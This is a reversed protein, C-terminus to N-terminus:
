VGGASCGKDWGRPVARRRGRWAGLARCTGCSSGWPCPGVAPAPLTTGPAQQVRPCPEQVPQPWPALVPPQLPVGASPPCPCRSPHERGPAPSGDCLLPAGRRKPFGAKILVGRLVCSLSAALLAALCRGGAAQTRGARGSGVGRGCCLVSASGGAGRWATCAAPVRGGQACAPAAGAPGHKGCTGWRLRGPEGLAAQTSSLEGTSCPLVHARPSLGMWGWVLPCSHGPPCTEHWSQLVRPEQLLVRLQVLLRTLADQGRLLRPAPCQENGPPSRLCAVTGPAAASDRGSRCM